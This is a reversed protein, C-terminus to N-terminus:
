KQDKQPIDEEQNIQSSRKPPIIKLHYHVGPTVVNANPMKDPSPPLNLVMADQNQKRKDFGPFSKGKRISDKLKFSDSKFKLTNLWGILTDRHLKLTDPNLFSRYKEPYEPKKQGVCNLSLLFIGTIFAITLKM